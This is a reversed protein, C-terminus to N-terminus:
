VKGCQHGPTVRTVQSPRGVEDGQIECVIDLAAGKVGFDSVEISCTVFVSFDAEM